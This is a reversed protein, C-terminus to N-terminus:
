FGTKHQIKDTCVKYLEKGELIKLSEDIALYKGNFRNFIDDVKDLYKQTEEPNNIKIQTSFYHTM